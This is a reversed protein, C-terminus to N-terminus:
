FTAIMLLLAFFRVDYVVSCAFCFFLILILILFSACFAVFFFAFFVSYALSIRCCADANLCM